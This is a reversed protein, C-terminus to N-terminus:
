VHAAAEKIIQDHWVLWEVWTRGNCKVADVYREALRCATVFDHRCWRMQQFKQPMHLVKGTHTWQQWGERNTAVMFKGDGRYYVGLTLGSINYKHWDITQDYGTPYYTREEIYMVM